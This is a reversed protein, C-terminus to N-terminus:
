CPGLRALLAEVHQAQTSGGGSTVVATLGSRLTRVGGRFDAALRAASALVETNFIPVDPDNGGVEAKEISTDVLDCFLFVYEFLDALLRAAAAGGSGSFALSGGAFGRKAVDRDEGAGLFVNHADEDSGSGRRGGGEEEPARSIPPLFCRSLVAASFADFASKLGDIGGGGSVADKISVVFDDWAGGVVAGTAYADLAGIVHAAEHRFIFLVAPLARAGAFAADEASSAAWGRVARPRRRRAACTLTSLVDRLRTSAGRLRLLFGHAAALRSLALPSLVARAFPAGAFSYTPSLRSLLASLASKPRVRPAAVSAYSFRHFHAVAAPTGVAARARLEAAAFAERQAGGGGGDRRAGPARALGWEEVAVAWAEKAVQVAAAGSTSEGRGVRGSAAAAALREVARSVVPGEGLMFWGRLAAAHGLVDGLVLAAAVATTSVLAASRLLPIGVASWTAESVSRSRASTLNSAPAEEAPAFFFVERGDSAVAGSFYGRGM